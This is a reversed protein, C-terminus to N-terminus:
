ETTFSHDCISQCEVTKRWHLDSSKLRDGRTEERQTIIMESAYLYVFFLGYTDLKKGILYLNM